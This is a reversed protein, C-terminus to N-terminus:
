TITITQKGSSPSTDGGAGSHRGPGHGGVTLLLIGVLLVAVISVIAMVKVWRPRTHPKSDPQRPPDAM